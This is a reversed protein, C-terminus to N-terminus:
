QCSECEEGPAMGGIGRAAGDWLVCVVGPTEEAEAQITGVRNRLERNADGTVRVRAGIPIIEPM